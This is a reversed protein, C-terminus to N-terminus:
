VVINPLAAMLHYRGSLDEITTSNIIVARSSNRFRLFQRCKQVNIVCSFAFLFVVFDCIYQCSLAFISQLGASYTFLKRLCASIERISRRITQSKSVSSINVNTAAQQRLLAEVFIYINPHKANFDANLHGHCSEAGNTTVSM